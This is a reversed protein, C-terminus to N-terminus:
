SNDLNSGSRRRKPFCLSPSRNDKKAFAKSAVWPAHKVASGAIILTRKCILVADQVLRKPVLAVVVVRRVLQVSPAPKVVSGAINQISRPTWAAAMVPSKGLPVLANDTKALFASLPIALVEANEAINAKKPSPLM